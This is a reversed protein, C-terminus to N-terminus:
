FLISLILLIGLIFTAVVSSKNKCFRKFCDKIFTTPKTQFKQDHIKADAQVLKFDDQSIEPDNVEPPLNNLNFKDKENAM